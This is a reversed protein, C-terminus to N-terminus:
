SKRKSVMDEHAIRYIDSRNIGIDSLERDTLTSLERVTNRYRQAGRVFCNIKRIFSM